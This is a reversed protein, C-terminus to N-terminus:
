AATPAPATAAEPAEKNFKEDGVAIQAIAFWNCSNRKSSRVFLANGISIELKMVELLKIDNENVNRGIFSKITTLTGVNHSSM